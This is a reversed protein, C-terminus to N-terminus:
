IAPLPVFRLSDLPFPFLLTTVFQTFSLHHVLKLSKKRYRTSKLPWGPQDSNGKESKVTEAWAM